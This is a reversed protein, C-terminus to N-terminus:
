FRYGRPGDVFVTLENSYHCRVEPLCAQCSYKHKGLPRESTETFCAIREESIAANAGLIGTIWPVNASKMALQRKSM